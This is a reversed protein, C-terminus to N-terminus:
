DECHFDGMRSQLDRKALLRRYRRDIKKSLRTGNMRQRRCSGNRYIEHHIAFAVRAKWYDPNAEAYAVTVVSLIAKGKWPYDRFLAVQHHLYTNRYWKATSSRGVPVRRITRSM